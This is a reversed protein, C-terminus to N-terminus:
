KSTKPFWIHFVNGFALEHDRRRTVWESKKCVLQHPVVASPATWIRRIFINATSAMLWCAVAKPRDSCPAYLTSCVAQYLTASNCGAPVLVSLPLPYYSEGIYCHGSIDYIFYVFIWRIGLDSARISSIFHTIDSELCQQDFLDHLYILFVPAPVAFFRAHRFIIKHWM